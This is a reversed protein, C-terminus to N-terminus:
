TWRRRNCWWLVALAAATFASRLITVVIVENWVEVGDLARYLFQSGSQIVWLSVLIFLLREVSSGFRHVIFGFGAGTLLALVVQELDVIPM